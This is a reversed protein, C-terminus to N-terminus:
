DFLHGLVCSIHDLRSTCAVPVVIDVGFVVANVLFWGVVAVAMVEVVVVETCCGLSCLAVSESTMPSFSKLLFLLHLRCTDDADVTAVDSPAFQAVV